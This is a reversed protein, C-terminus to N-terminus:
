SAHQGDRRGVGSTGPVIGLLVNLLAVQSALAGVGVLGGHHSVGHPIRELVGRSGGQVDEDLERCDQAEDKNGEKHLVAPQQRASDRYRLRQHRRDRGREGPTSRGQPEGPHLNFSGQLHTITVCQEHVFVTESGNM